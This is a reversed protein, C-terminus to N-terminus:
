LAGSLTSVLTFYSIEITEVQAMEEDFEIKSWKKCDDRHSSELLRNFM